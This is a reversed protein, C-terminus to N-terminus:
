AGTKKSEVVQPSKRSGNVKSQLSKQLSDSGTAAQAQVDEEVQGCKVRNLSELHNFDRELGEPTPHVYRQSVTVSSHGAIRMIKFADRVRGFPDAHHAEFSHLVFDAPLKIATRVDDHRHDLSNVLIPAHPSEGPFVWPSNAAAKRVKLMAAARATLSLNRKANRSKGGRIAIYGRQAHVAPELHVEARVM